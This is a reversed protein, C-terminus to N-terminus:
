SEEREPFRRSHETASGPSMSPRTELWSISSASCRIGPRKIRSRLTSPHLKLLRAAGDTGDIKWRTRQLVEVFHAREIEELSQARAIPADGSTRQPPQEHAQHTGNSGDARELPAQLGEVALYTGRRQGVFGGVASRGIAYASRIECELRAAIFATPGHSLLGVGRRLEHRRFQRCCGPTGSVGRMARGGTLRIKKRTRGLFRQRSGSDLLDCVPLAFPQCLAVMLEFSSSFWPYFSM